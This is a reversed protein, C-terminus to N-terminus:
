RKEERIMDALKGNESPLIDAYLSTMTIASHGLQKQVFRLNETKHLLYTGYTHRANHISYHKPLGAKIIAKKFSIHLTTTTIQNGNRGAFLFSDPDIPERLTKKKFDIYEKLHKTIEKDLYVDRSKGGKGKEVFLSRSKAKLDLDKIKLKAIESVRLGSYLALDVLCYRDIWTRRGKMLDLDALDKCTKILKGRQDQDLFKNKTISYGSKM